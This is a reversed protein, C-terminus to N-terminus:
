GDFGKLIEDFDIIPEATCRCSFEQGPEIGDGWKRTTGNLAQHTKRVREDGATRWIYRELGISTQQRKTIQGHLNATQDRAILRCRYEKFGTVEKIQKIMDEPRGGNRFNESIISKLRTSAINDINKILSVNEDVWSNLHSYIPDNEFDPVFGFADRLQSSFIRNNENLMERGIEKISVSFELLYSSNRDSNSEIRAIFGNGLTIDPDIVDDIADRRKTPIKKIDTILSKSIEALTKNVYKIMLLDYKQLFAKDFKIAKLKHPKLKKQWDNGYLLKITLAIDKRITM